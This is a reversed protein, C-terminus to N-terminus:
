GLVFFATTIAIPLYQRISAFTIIDGGKLIYLPTADAYGQLSPSKQWIEDLLTTSAAEM